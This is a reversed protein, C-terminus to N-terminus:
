CCAYSLSLIKASMNYLRFHHSQKDTWLVEWCGTDRQFHVQFGNDQCPKKFCFLAAKVTVKIQTGAPVIDKADVQAGAARAVDQGNNKVTTANVYTYQYKKDFDKGASLTKGQPDKVVPTAFTKGPKKNYM